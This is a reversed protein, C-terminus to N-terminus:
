TLVSSACLDEREHIYLSKKQIITIQSWTWKRKTLSTRREKKRNRKKKKKILKIKCIKKKIKKKKKKFLNWKVFKKVFYKVYSCHYSYLQSLVFILHFCVNSTLSISLSSERPNTDNYSGCSSSQNCGGCMGVFKVSYKIGEEL